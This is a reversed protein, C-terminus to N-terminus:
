GVWSPAQLVWVPATYLFASANSTANAEIRRFYKLKESTRDYYAPTSRLDAAFYAIYNAFVNSM